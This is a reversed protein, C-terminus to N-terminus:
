RTNEPVEPQVQCEKDVEDWHCEDFKDCTDQKKCNGCSDKSCAANADEGVAEFGPFGM